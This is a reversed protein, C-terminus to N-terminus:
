DKNYFIADIITGFDQPRLKDDEKIQYDFLARINNKALEGDFKATAVAQKGSNWAWMGIFWKYSMSPVVGDHLIDGAASRWNTTLTEISKIAANKYSKDNNGKINAFTKDLYGQWRINNEEFYKESNKFM